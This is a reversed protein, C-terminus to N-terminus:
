SKYRPAAQYPFPCNHKLALRDAPKKLWASQWYLSVPIAVVTTSVITEQTLPIYFMYDPSTEKASHLQMFSSMQLNHVHLHYQESYQCINEHIKLACINSPLNTPFRIAYM